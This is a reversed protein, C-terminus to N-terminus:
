CGPPMAWPRVLWCRCEFCRALARGCWKPRARISRAPPLVVLDVAIANAVRIVTGANGPDAIQDFVAVLAASSPWSASRWRALAVMGQGARSIKEVYPGSAMHVYGGGAEVLRVVEAHRQACAETTYLDTVLGEKAAERSPNPGEVLVLGRQRRVSARGLARVQKIRDSNLNDLLSIVQRRTGPPAM